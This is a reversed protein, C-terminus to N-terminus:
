PFRRPQPFRLSGRTRPPAPPRQRRQGPHPQVRQAALEGGGGQDTRGYETMPAQTIGDDRWHFARGEWVPHLTDVLAMARSLDLGALRCRQCFGHLLDPESAGALGQEVLWASVAVIDDEQM